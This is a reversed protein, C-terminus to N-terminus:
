RLLRGDEGRGDDGAAPSEIVEHQGIDDRALWEPGEHSRAVLLPEVDNAPRVVGQDLGLFAADVLGVDVLLAVGLIRSHALQEAAIRAIALQEPQLLAPGVVDDLLEAVVAFDVVAVETDVRREFEPTADVSQPALAAHHVGQRHPLGPRLGPAVGAAGHALIAEPSLLLSVAFWTVTTARSQRRPREQESPPRRHARLYPRCSALRAPWGHTPM